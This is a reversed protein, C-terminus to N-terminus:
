NGGTVTRGMLGQVPRASVEHHFKLLQAPSATLATAYVHWRVGETCPPTTLSGAYAWGSNDAPLLARPDVNGAVATATSTATDLPDFVGALAVNDSAASDFLVGLVALEGDAARHVLHMELPHHQGGVTHESQKHFHFQLLAFDKGGLTIKSSGGAFSYQVTHGNDVITVPGPLYSFTIGALPRPVSAAPIDIPSQETGVKCTALEGAGLDGWGTPGDVAAEEYEWHPLTFTGNGGSVARGKLGQVPRFSIAHRSTFKAMQAASAEVPTSYVHWRVSESCPPTTLSGQYAWGNRNAPLLATPDPQAGLAVPTETAAAMKDFVEALAANAAGMKFLVGVVALEGDAARHVLHMELPFSVGAITHESHAHFHFQLLAYDKGAITLKNTADALDVQVTHGNDKITAPAAAYAFTLGALPAFQTWKVIDIPSQQVGSGCLANGALAGWHAPGEEGEYTWHPAAAADSKTGAADNGGTQGDVAADVAARQDASGCGYGVTILALLALGTRSTSTLVM